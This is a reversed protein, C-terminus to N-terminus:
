KRKSATVMPFIKAKDYMIEIKDFGAKKMQTKIVDSSSYCQFKVQLIAMYIKGQMTLHEQNIKSFDWECASGASPPPTLFSTILTGDPKLYSYFSKFLEVNKNEDPEYINLGNSSIVDAQEKESLDWADLQKFECKSSLKYKEAMQKAQTLSDQDLDIGFLKFNRVKSYDLQLLDRMLGCPISAMTIEDKITKQLAERFLRFREQTALVVPFKELITRELSSWKIHPYTGDPYTVVVDTWYGNFGSNTILFKGLESQSLEKALEILEKSLAKDEIKTLNSIIEELKTSIDIEQNNHSLIRNM